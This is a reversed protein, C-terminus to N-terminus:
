RKVMKGYYEKAMVFNWHSIVDDNCWQVILGNIWPVM